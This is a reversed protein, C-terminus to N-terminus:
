QDTQHNIIYKQVARNHEELSASFFHSSSNKAVFYLYKTNEPYLAAEISSYGPCCIPGPPLGKHLRTNYPSDYKLEAWGLRGPYRNDRKLAYIITPDCGMTMGIRLRNHFVSSVLFREAKSASEKEILTAMTIVERVTLNMEDARWKMAQTFIEKFKEVMVNVMEEATINSEVMYTDPFLYGELDDAKPDIDQILHTSRAHNLFDQANIGHNQGLYAAIESITLGEVITIKHLVVKGEQLKEIVEKVSMPRDFRYEGSKFNSKNAFLRYYIKFYNTNAIIHNRELLRAISSVPLGKPIRITVPADHGEYPPFVKLYFDLGLLLVAIVTLILFALIIKKFSSKKKM